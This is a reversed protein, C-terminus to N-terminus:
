VMFGLNRITMPTLAPAVLEMPNVGNATADPLGFWSAMTAMYEACSIAPILRGQDGDWTGNLTIQPFATSIAGGKTQRSYLRGGVVSGGVVFHHGGWGHDTGTGNGLLTRGFDSATYTTVNNSLGQAVMEDYFAKIANDVQTLLAAHATLTAAATEGGHHDFGGLQVFFVDRRHALTARGRILRAVTKLQKGLSTTPFSITLTTSGLATEAITAFDASRQWVDKLAIELKHQKGMATWLPMTQGTVSSAHSGYHGYTMDPFGTLPTDSDVLQYQVTEYGEMLRTRGAISITSPVVKSPNFAPNVLDQLRGVWGTPENTDAPTQTHWLLQQDSHSFLQVPRLGTGPIYSSGWDTKNLPERLQGVNCLIAAKGANFITQMNVLSPHLGADSVGTLALVSASPIAQTSGRDTQYQTYQSGVPVVTNHADNGGNLFVCVLAKYNTGGGAAAATTMAAAANQYPVPLTM